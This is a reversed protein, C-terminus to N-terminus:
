SVRTSLDGAVGRLLEAAHEGERLLLTQIAEAVCKRRAEAEAHQYATANDYDRECMRGSQLADNEQSDSRDSSKGHAVAETGDACEHARAEEKPREVLQLAHELDRKEITPAENEGADDCSFRHIVVRTM